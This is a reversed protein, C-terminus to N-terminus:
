QDFTLDKKNQISDQFQYHINAFLSLQKILVTNKKHSCPCKECFKVDHPTNQGVGWIRNPNLSNHKKMPRTKIRRIAAQRNWLIRPGQIVEFVHEIHFGCTCNLIALIVQTYNLRCKNMEGINLDVTSKNSYTWEM